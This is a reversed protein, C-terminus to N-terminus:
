CGRGLRRGQASCLHGPRAFSRAHARRHRGSLLAPDRAPPICVRVTASACAFAARCGRCRVSSGRRARTQCAHRRASPALAHPRVRVWGCGATWLPLVVSSLLDYDYFVPLLLLKRCLSPDHHCPFKQFGPWPRNRSRLPLSM